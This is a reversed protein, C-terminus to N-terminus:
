IIIYQTKNHQYLIYQDKKLEFNSKEKLFSCEWTSTLFDGFSFIESSIFLKSWLTHVLQEHYIQM